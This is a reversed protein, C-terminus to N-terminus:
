NLIKLSLNKFHVTMGPDHLQFQIMGKKLRKAEPLHETFESSLKGNIFLKFNNGKAIIHVTNWDSKRIDAATLANPIPTIKSVRLKKLPTIFRWLVHTLYMNPWCERALTAMFSRRSKEDWDIAQAAVSPFKSQHPWDGEQEIRRLERATEEALRQIEKSEM